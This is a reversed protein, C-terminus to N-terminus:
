ALLPGAPELCYYMTGNMYAGAADTIVMSIRYAGSKQFCVTKGDGSLVSATVDRGADAGSCLEVSRIRVSYKKGALSKVLSDTGIIDGCTLHVASVIDAADIGMKSRVSEASIDGIEGMGAAREPMSYSYLAKGGQGRILLGSFILSLVAAATVAALVAAGYNKMVEKM